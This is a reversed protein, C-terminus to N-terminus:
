PEELSTVQFPESRVTSFVAGPGLGIRLSGILELLDGGAFNGREITFVFENNQGFWHVGDNVHGSFRPPRVSAVPAFRTLNRVLLRADYTCNNRAPAAEVEMRVAFGVESVGDARLESGTESPYIALARGGSTNTM